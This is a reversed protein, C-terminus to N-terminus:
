KPASVLDKFRIFDTSVILCRADGKAVCDRELYEAQSGLARNTWGGVFGSMFACAPNQRPGAMKAALGVATGQPFEWTITGGEPDYEVSSRGWGVGALIECGLHLLRLKSEEAPLDGADPLKVGAGDWGSKYGVVYSYRRAAPWGMVEELVHLFDYIRGAWLLMTPYPSGAWYNVGQGANHELLEKSHREFQRRSEEESITLRHKPAM